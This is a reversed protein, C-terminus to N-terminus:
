GKPAGAMIWSRITDIQKADFCANGCMYPMRAGCGKRGADDEEVKQLILSDEPMNPVVMKQSKCADIGKTPNGMLRDYLGSDNKLSDHKDGGDHCSSCKSGLWEAVAKFTAGTAGGSGGAGGGSAGGMTGASGGGGGKGASAGGAGGGATGGSGGGGKGATSGGAGGSGGSSKGATGGASTGGKGAGGGTPSVGGTTSVGGTSVIGGTTGGSGAKGAAGGTPSVGGTTGPTETGDDSASCANFGLTGLISVLYLKRMALADYRRSAIIRPSKEANKEERSPRLNCREQPV